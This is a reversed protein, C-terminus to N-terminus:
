QNYNGGKSTSTERMQILRPAEPSSHPFNNPTLSCYALHSCHQFLGMFRGKGKGKVECSLFTTDEQRM